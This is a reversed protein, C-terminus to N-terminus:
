DSGGMMAGPGAGVEPVPGMALAMPAVGEAAGQCRKGQGGWQVCLCAMEEQVHERCGGPGVCKCNGM